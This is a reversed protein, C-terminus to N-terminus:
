IRVLENPTADIRQTAAQDVSMNPTFTPTAAATAVEVGPALKQAAKCKERRASLLIHVQRQM